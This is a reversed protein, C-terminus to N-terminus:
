QTLTKERRQFIFLLTFPKGLVDWSKIRISKFICDVLSIINEQSLLQRDSLGAGVKMLRGRNWIGVVTEESMKRPVSISCKSKTGQFSEFQLILFKTFHATSRSM